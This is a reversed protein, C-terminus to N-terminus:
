SHDHNDKMMREIESLSERIAKLDTESDVRSVELSGIRKQLEVIASRLLDWERSTAM